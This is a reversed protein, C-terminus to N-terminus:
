DFFDIMKVGQMELWHFRAFVRFRAFLSVGFEKIL